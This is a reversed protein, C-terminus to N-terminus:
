FPLTYTMAQSQPSEWAATNLRIDKLKGYDKYKLIGNAMAYDYIQKTLKVDDICYDIVQQFKGERWWNIADSGGGSKNVGLTAEAVTDLKIRRGIVAQVEKMLDLSKIRTLDGPYYKNLIPVDFHDGNWSVLMDASEFIPWLKNLDKELFSKYQDDESDHICVVSIDLASPENSGVDHFFNKTELDFTIKRM